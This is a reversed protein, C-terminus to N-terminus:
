LNGNTQTKIGLKELTQLTKIAQIATEYHKREKTALDYSVEEWATMKKSLYRMRVQDCMDMQEQLFKITEM